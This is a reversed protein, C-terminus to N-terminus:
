PRYLCIAESLPETLWLDRDARRRCRVQLDEGKGILAVSLQWGALGANLFAWSGPPFPPDLEARGGAPDFRARGLGEWVSLGAAKCASEKLTWLLYFAELRERAPIKEFWAMEASPFVRGPQEASLRPRVQELDVGVPLTAVAAAMLGGSHSLNLHLPAAEYNVGGNGSTRLARPDARGVVRAVAELLLARGALFSARRAPRTFGRCRAQEEPHLRALLEDGAAGDEAYEAVLIEVDQDM